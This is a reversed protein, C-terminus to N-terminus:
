IIVKCFQIFSHPNFNWAFIDGKNLNQSLERLVSLNVGAAYLAGVISGASTGTVVDAVIENEELVELVGIHAVGLIGGGGLAVGLRKRRM